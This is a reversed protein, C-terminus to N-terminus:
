PVSRTKRGGKMNTERILFVSVFVATSDGHLFCQAESIVCHLTEIQLPPRFFHPQFELESHMCSLRNDCGPRLIAKVRSKPNGRGKEACVLDRQTLRLQQGMIPHSHSGIIFHLGKPNMACLSCFGKFFFPFSAPQGGMAMISPWEHEEEPTLCRARRQRGEVRRQACGHQPLAKNSMIKRAPLGFSPGM